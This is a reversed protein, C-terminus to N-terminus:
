ALDIAWAWCRGAAIISARACSSIGPRARSKASVQRRSISVQLANEGVALVKLRLQGMVLVVELSASGLSGPICLRAVLGGLSRM